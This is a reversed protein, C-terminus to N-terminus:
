VRKQQQLICRCTLNWFLGGGGCRAVVEKETPRERKKKKEQKLTIFEQKCDFAREECVYVPCVTIRLLLLTNLQLIHKAPPPM